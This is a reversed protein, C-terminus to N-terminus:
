RASGKVPGTLPGRVAGVTCVGERRGGAWMTDTPVLWDIRLTSEFYPVGVYDEFWVVCTDFAEDALAEVGPFSGDRFMWRHFVEADRSGGCDVDAWTAVNGDDDFALDYCPGVADVDEVFGGFSDEFATGVEEVTPAVNAQYWRWGLFAAAAVAFVMVLVTVGCGLGIGKASGSSPKPSSAPPAQVYGVPPPPAPPPPGPTPTAGSPARPGMGAAHGAQGVSAVGPGGAGDDQAEDATSRAASRRSGCHQCFAGTGPEGGCTGCREGM